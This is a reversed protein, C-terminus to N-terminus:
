RKSKCKNKTNVPPGSEDIRWEDGEGPTAPIGLAVIRFGDLSSYAVKYEYSHDTIEPVYTLGDLAQPAQGWKAIYANMERQYGKLNRRAEAQAKHCSVGEGFHLFFDPGLYWVSAGVLALVVVLKRM